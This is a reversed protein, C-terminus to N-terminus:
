KREKFRNRLKLVCFDLENVVVYETFHVTFVHKFSDCHSGCVEEIFGQHLMWDIAVVFELNEDVDCCVSEGPACKHEPDALTQRFWKLEASFGSLDGFFCFM